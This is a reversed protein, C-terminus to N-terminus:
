RHWIAGNPIVRLWGAGGAGLGLVIDTRGDGDVDGLAPRLEGSSANYATWDLELVGDTGAQTLRALQSAGDDWAYLRGQGGSGQGVILEDRGDGDIDGCAPFVAGDGAAEQTSPVAVSKPLGSVPRFKQARDGRIYV